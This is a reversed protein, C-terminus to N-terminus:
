ARRQQREVKDRQRERYIRHHHFRSLGWLVLFTGLSAVSLAVAVLLNLELFLTWQFSYALLIAWTVCFGYFAPLFGLPMKHRAGLRGFWILLLLVASLGIVHLAMYTADVHGAPAIIRLALWVFIALPGASFWAFFHRQMPGIVFYPTM